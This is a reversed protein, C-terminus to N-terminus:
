GRADRSIRTYHAELAEALRAGSFRELVLRRGAEELRARLPRDLLLRAIRDALADADGAPGLLAHEGDELVEPDVGVRSAVLARAGALYEFVVRSMGDSELAVYLAVDL